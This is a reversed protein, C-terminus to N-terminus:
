RYKVAESTPTYLLEKSAQNISYSTAQQAVNFAAAVLLLPSFLLAGMSSFLVVPSFVLGGKAGFFRLVVSTVFFQLVAGTINTAMYVKGFFATTADTGTVLADVLHFYHYNFITRALTLFFVISAILRVHRDDILLHADTWLSPHPPASELLTSPERAPAHALRWFTLLTAAVMLAAAVLLCHATGIRSPLWVTLSSGLIGGIIGGGGILGYYRRGRAADFLDNTLSWFLTVLLINYVSAWVFFVASMAVDALMLQWFLLLNLAVAAQVYLVFRRAECRRLLRNYAWVVVLTIAAVLLYFYPLMEPGIRKVFLTDRVPKVIYYSTILLLFHAFALLASTLDKM